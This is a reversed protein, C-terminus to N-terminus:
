QLCLTEIRRYGVTQQVMEQIGDREPSRSRFAYLWTTWYQDDIQKPRGIRLRRNTKHIVMRFIRRGHEPAIKESRKVRSVRQVFDPPLQDGGTQRLEPHLLNIFEM